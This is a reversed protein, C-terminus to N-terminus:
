IFVTNTRFIASRLCEPAMWRLPVTHMKVNLTEGDPSFLSLGFDSIKM